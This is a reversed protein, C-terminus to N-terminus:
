KYYFSTKIGKEELRSFILDINKRERGVRDLDIDYSYIKSNYSIEISTKCLDLYLFGNFIQVFGHVYRSWNITIYDIKCEEYNFEKVLDNKVFVKISQEGLSIHGNIRYNKTWTSILLIFLYL